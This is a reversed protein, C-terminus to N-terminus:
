NKRGHLPKDQALQKYRDLTDKPFKAELKENIQEVLPEFIPDHVEKPHVTSDHGQKRWNVLSFFDYLDEEVFRMSNCSLCKYINHFNHCILESEDHPPKFPNACKFFMMPYEHNQLMRTAEDESCGINEMLAQVRDDDTVDKTKESVMQDIEDGMKNHFYSNLLVPRLYNITTQTHRHGAANKVAFLDGNTKLILESLHTHRSINSSVNFSLNHRNKFNIFGNHLSAPHKQGFEKLKWPVILYDSRECNSFPFFQKTRDKIARLISIIKVVSSNSSFTRKQVRESRNKYASLIYEDPKNLDPSQKLCDYKLDLMPQHNLGTELSLAVILPAYETLTMLYPIGLHRFCDVVRLGLIRYATNFFWPDRLSVSNHFVESQRTNMDPLVVNLVYWKVYNKNFWLTKINIGLREVIHPTRKEFKRKYSKSGAGTRKKFDNIGDFMRSIGIGKLFRQYARCSNRKGREQHKEGCDLVNEWYWICYTVFDWRSKRAKTPEPKGKWFLDPPELFTSLYFAEIDRNIAEALADLQDTSYTTSIKSQLSGCYPNPPFTLNKLHSYGSLDQIGGLVRIVAYYVNEKSHSNLSDRGTLYSLFLILDQSSFDMVGIGNKTVFALFENFRQGEAKATASRLVLVNSKAFAMFAEYWGQDFDRRYFGVRKKDSFTLYCKDRNSKSMKVKLSSSFNMPM